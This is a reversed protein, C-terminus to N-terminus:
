LSSVAPPAPASVFPLSIGRANRSNQCQCLNAHACCVSVVAFRRASRASANTAGTSDAAGVTSSFRFRFRRSVSVSTSPGEFSPFAPFFFFFLALNSSSPPSEHNGNVISWHPIDKTDRTVRRSRNWGAVFVVIVPSRIHRPHRMVSVIHLRLCSAAFSRPV